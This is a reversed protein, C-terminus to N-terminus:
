YIDHRGVSYFRVTNEDIFDFIIRHQYNISFSWFEALEGHLKHTKLRSDFPNARFIREKKIAISKIEEPLKKFQQGFKSHYFIKM